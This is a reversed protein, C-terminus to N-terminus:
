SSKAQQNGAQPRKGIQEGKPLQEYKVVIREDMKAYIKAWDTQSM